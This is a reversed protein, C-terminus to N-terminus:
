EQLKEKLTFNHCHFTKNKKLHLDRPWESSKQLLGPIQVKLMSGLASPCVLLKVRSSQLCVLRWEWLACGRLNKSEQGERSNGGEQLLCLAVCPPSQLGVAHSTWGSKQWPCLKSQAELWSMMVQSLICNASSLRRPLCVSFSLFWPDLLLCGLCSLPPGQFGSPEQLHIWWPYCRCQKAKARRLWKRKPVDAAAAM